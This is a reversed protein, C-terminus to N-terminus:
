TEHYDFNEWHNLVAMKSYRLKYLYQKFVVPCGLLDFHYSEHDQEFSVALVLLIQQISM